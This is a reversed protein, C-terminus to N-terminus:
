MKMKKTRPLMLKKIDNDEEQTSSEFDESNTAGRDEVGIIETYKLM